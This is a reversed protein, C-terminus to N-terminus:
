RDPSRSIKPFTRNLEMVLQVLRIAHQTLARSYEGARTWDAYAIKTVVEGREKIAELITGIDFHEGLTSKVGIEINDFDIFVAINVREQHAM